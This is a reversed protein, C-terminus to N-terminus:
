IRRGRYYDKHQRRFARVDALVAAALQMVCLVSTLGVTCLLLVRNGLGAVGMYVNAMAFVSVFVLMMTKKQKTQVSLVLVSLAMGKVLPEFLVLFVFVVRTSALMERLEDWDSMALVLGCLLGCTVFVSKSDEVVSRADVWLVWGVGYAVPLVCVAITDTWTEPISGPHNLSLISVCLVGYAFNSSVFARPGPFCQEVLWGAVLGTVLYYLSSYSGMDISYFTGWLLVATMHIRRVYARLASASAFVVVEV